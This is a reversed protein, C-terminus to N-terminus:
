KKMTEIDSKYICLKLDTKWRYAGIIERLLTTARDPCENILYKSVSIRATERGAENGAFLIDLCEPSTLKEFLNNNEDENSLGGMHSYLISLLLINYEYSHRSEYIARHILLLRHSTEEVVNLYPTIKQFIDMFSKVHPSDSHSYELLQPIHTAICLAELITWGITVVENKSYTRPTDFHARVNISNAMKDIQIQLPDRTETRDVINKQIFQSIRAVIADNLFKENQYYFESKGTSIDFEVKPITVGPKTSIVYKVTIDM